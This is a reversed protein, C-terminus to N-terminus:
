RHPTASKWGPFPQMLFSSPHSPLRAVLQSCHVVLKRFLKHSIIHQLATGPCHGEDKNTSHPIQRGKCLSLNVEGSMRARTDCGSLRVHVPSLQAKVKWSGRRRRRQACEVCFRCCMLTSKSQATPTYVRVHETNPDKIDTCACVMRVKTRPPTGVGEQRKLRRVM